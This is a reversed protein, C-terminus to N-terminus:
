DYVEVLLIVIGKKGVCGICGICYLYVDVSCLLDFNIVYSIDLVDIGCVVVDIVLLINVDGECFCSIM